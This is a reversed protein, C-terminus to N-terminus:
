EETGGEEWVGSRAGLWVIWSGLFLAPRLHNVLFYKAARVMM